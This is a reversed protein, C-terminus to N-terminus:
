DQADFDDYPIQEVDGGPLTVSMMLLDKEEDYYLDDLQNNWDDFQDSIDYKMTRRMRILQSHIIKRWKRATLTRTQSLVNYLGYETLFVVAAKEGDLMTFKIIYEDKECLGEIELVDNYGFMEAVEYAIFLPEDMSSYVDLIKEVFKIEGVKEIM